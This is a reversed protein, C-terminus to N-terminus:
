GSQFDQSKFQKLSLAIAPINNTNVTSEIEYNALNPASSETSTM